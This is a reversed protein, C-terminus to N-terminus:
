LRQPLKFYGWRISQFNVDELGADGEDEEEDKADKGGHSHDVHALLDIKLIM